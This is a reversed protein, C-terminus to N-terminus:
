GYFMTITIRTTIVISIRSTTKNIIITSIIITMIEMTIMDVIMIILMIVMVISPKEFGGEEDNSNNNTPCEVIDNFSLETSQEVLAIHKDNSVHTVIPAPILSEKSSNFRKIGISLNNNIM